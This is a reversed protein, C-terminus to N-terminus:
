YHGLCSVVHVEVLGHDVKYVIRHEPSLRRSCYGALNWRLREFNHTPAYPDVALTSLIDDLRHELHHFRKRIQKTDKLAQPSLLVKWTM